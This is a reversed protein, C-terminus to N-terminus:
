FVDNLSSAYGTLEIYGNGSVALGRSTGSFRVAGEWYPFSVRMEQAALWPEISLEIQASPITMRWRSPYDAKTQPSRWHALTEIQVDSADFRTARGDAEVLAGGSVPEMSGDARRLAYFMVERGDNLQLSFWDWGVVGAGLASTSWEHDFWSEGKVATPQGGTTIQG